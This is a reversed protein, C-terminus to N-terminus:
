ESCEPCPIETDRVLEVEGVADPLTPDAMDWVITGALREGTDGPCAPPEDPAELVLTVPEPDIGLRGLELAGVAIRVPLLELSLRVTVDEPRRISEGPPWEVTTEYTGELDAGLEFEYLGVNGSACIDVVDPGDAAIVFSRICADLEPVDRSRVTGGFTASGDLELSEGQVLLELTLSYEDDAAGRPFSVDGVIFRAGEEFVVDLPAVRVVESTGGGAPAREITVLASLDADPGYGDLGPCDAAAARAVGDTEFVAAIQLTIPGPDGDPDLLLCGTPAGLATLAVAAVAIRRSRRMM